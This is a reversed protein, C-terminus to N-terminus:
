LLNCATRKAEYPNNKDKGPCALPDKGFNNKTYNILTECAESSKIRPLELEQQLRENQQQLRAVRADSM